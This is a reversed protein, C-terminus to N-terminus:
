EPQPYGYQHRESLSLRNGGGPVATNNGEVSIAYPQIHSIRITEGDATDKRQERRRYLILIAFNVLVTLIVCALGVGVAAGLSVGGNIQSCIVTM